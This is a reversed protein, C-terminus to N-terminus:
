GQRRRPSSAASAASGYVLPADTRESVGAPSALEPVHDAKGLQHTALVYHSAGVAAERRLSQIARFHVAGHYPLFEFGEPSARIERALLKPALRAEDIPRYFRVAM